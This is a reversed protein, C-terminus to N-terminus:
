SRWLTIPKLAIAQKFHIEAPGYERMEEYLVGIANHAEPYNENYQVAKLLKETAVTSAAPSCTVSAWSSIPRPFTTRSNGDKSSACAGLLVAPILSGDTQLRHRM